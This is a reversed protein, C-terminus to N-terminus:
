EFLKVLAPVIRKIETNATNICLEFNLKDGWKNGTYAEYYRARQKDIDMIRQRLEKDTLIEEKPGKKRCRTIKSDM